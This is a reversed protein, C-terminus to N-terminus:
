LRLWLCLIVFAVAFVVVFVHGCRVVVFLCTLTRTRARFCYAQAKRSQGASQQPQYRQSCGVSCRRGPDKSNHLLRCMGQQRSDPVVIWEPHPCADLAYGCLLGHKASNGPLHPGDQLYDTEAALLHSKATLVLRLRRM